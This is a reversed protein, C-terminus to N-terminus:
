SEEGEEKGDTYGVTKGVASRGGYLQKREGNEGPGAGGELEQSVSIPQNGRFRKRM